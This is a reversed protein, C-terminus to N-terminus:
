RATQRQRVAAWRRAGDTRSGPREGINAAQHVRRFEDVFGGTRELQDFSTGRFLEQSVGGYTPSSPDFPINVPMGTYPLTRQPNAVWHHVFEPRMRRYVDDLNPGLTKVAGRVQYDGISHCKVCYNGDTLIKMRM